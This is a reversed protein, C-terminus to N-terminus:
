MVISICLALVCHIADLMIIIELLKMSPCSYSIEKLFASLKIYTYFTKCMLTAVSYTHLEMGSPCIQFYNTYFVIPVCVISSGYSFAINVPVRPFLFIGPVQLSLSTQSLGQRQIATLILFSFFFM